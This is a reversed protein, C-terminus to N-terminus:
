AVQSFPGHDRSFVEMDFYFSFGESVCALRALIQRLFFFFFLFGQRLKLIMM